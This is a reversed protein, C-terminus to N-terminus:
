ISAPGTRELNEKRELNTTLGHSDQFDPLTPLGTPQSRRTSGSTDSYVHQNHGFRSSSNM